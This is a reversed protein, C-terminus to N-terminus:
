PTYDETGTKALLFDEIYPCVKKPKPMLGKGCPEKTRFLVGSGFNERNEAKQLHILELTTAAKM